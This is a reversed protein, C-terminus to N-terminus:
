AHTITIPHRAPFGQEARGMETVPPQEEFFEAWVSRWDVTARLGAMVSLVETDMRGLVATGPAATLHRLASASPGTPSNRREVYEPTVTFPQEDWYWRLPEHWYEFADEPTVGDGERFLGARVCARWTAEVDGRICAHVLTRTVVRLEDAVHKVCGFDVFSVTGNERFLYDGPHADANFAQFKNVLGYAFRFIAEAWRDRLHKEATIAQEWRLGEVLEQTLGRGTALENIVEPM